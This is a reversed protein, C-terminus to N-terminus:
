WSYIWVKNELRSGVNRIRFWLYKFFLYIWIFKEWLCISNRLGLGKVELFDNYENIKFYRLLSVM